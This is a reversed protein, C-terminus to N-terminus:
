SNKLLPLVQPGNPLILIKADKGHRNLSSEIAKEVTEAYKLGINGIEHEKLKSVVIISAKMLVRTLIQIEWQDSVVIEKFKQSLAESIKNYTSNM